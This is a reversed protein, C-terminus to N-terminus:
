RGSGSPCPGPAVAPMPITDVVGGTQFLQSCVTVVPPRGGPKAARAPHRVEFLYHASRNLPKAPIWIATWRREPLGSVLVTLINPGRDDDVMRWEGADQLLIAVRRDRTWWDGDPPESWEFRPASDDVRQQADPLVPELDAYPLNYREGFFAPGFHFLAKMGPRYVAPGFSALSPRLEQRRALDALLAGIVEGQRAGYMTSAGEYNQAAFEAESSTYGIYENALGILLHRQGTTEELRKRLEFGQVTTMETPIAALSLPGLSALSVPIEAPYNKPSDLLRQLLKLYLPKYLELAPVRADGRSHTVGGHWGYSYLITRGDEAGGLEGVGSAPLTLDHTEASPPVAPFSRRAAAIAPTRVTEASHTLTATVARAFADGLSLVDHRNQSVWRPSIDGEAGNFFGAIVSERELVQMAYGTLDSQYVTCDHTMATNHIAYFVLLATRRGGSRVELVALSPDVAQYRPCDGGSEPDPCSVGANRRRDLVKHRQEPTNRFFADIARNRQLDLAVGSHLSISADASQLANERAADVAEAIADTLHQFLDADFGPLPGAFNFVASSMYGAPGHHTHTAAVILSEPPLMLRAAVAAHLGAPIAFLDCSVLALTHGRADQFYFAHAYLRTWYGRAVRGGISHGGMPYGPPPTIDVRAAGALFRAPAGAPPSVHYAPVRIRVGTCGALLLLLGVAAPRM